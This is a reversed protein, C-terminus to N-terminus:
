KVVVKMEKEKAKWDFPKPNYIQEQFEELKRDTIILQEKMAERMKEIDKKLEAIENKDEETLEEVNYVKELVAEMMDENDIHSYTRTQRSDRSHGAFKKHIQEPILKHLENLKSHRLLYGYMNKNIGAKKSLKKFMYWTTTPSVLKNRDTTSPFVLDERRVDTYCFENFWRQIHITSNKCPLTRAEKKKGSFLTVETFEKNFDKFKLHRIEDPRGACEFSLSIYAKDRLREACRLMSEVEEPTPMTSKNIKDQTTPSGLQIDDFQNFRLSWDPYKWKLFKKLTVKIGQKTWDRMYGNNVIALFERLKELDIKDFPTDMVDRIQLLTLRREGVKKDGANISCYTLFDKLTKKETKNLKDEIFQVGTKRYNPYPNIM